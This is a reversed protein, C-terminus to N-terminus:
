RGRRSSKKRAGGSSGRKRASTKRGAGKKTASKKRAGGKKAASKRPGRGSTSKRSQRRPAAGAPAPAPAAYHEPDAIAEAGSRLEQMMLLMAHKDGTRARDGLADLRASKSATRTTDLGFLPTVLVQDADLGHVPIEQRTLISSQREGQELTVLNVWQLSSVVLPSHTTAIFQINPLKESLRPLVEMQWSPHLHLDIEDIMIIGRNEVLKKGKSATECVHYLLDGLWGYFARYGDSLEPFPVTLGDREFLYEGNEVADTILFHGPGAIERMLSMVQSFRGKNTAQYRPLWAALPVLSYAEDFLSQVRRARAHSAGRSARGVAEKDETRRNAGYGVFFLADSSESYIPHWDEDRETAVQENRDLYKVDEYSEIRDIRISSRLPEEGIGDQPNTVFEGKILARTSPLGPVNAGAQRKIMAPAGPERRVLREPKILNAVPGLCALAIAKLLASKGAGNNGLVLNVNPFQVAPIPFREKLDEASRAPHLLDIEAHRFTRFNEIRISEIYM